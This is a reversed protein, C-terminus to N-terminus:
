KHVNAVSLIFVPPLSAKRCFLLLNPSKILIIKKKNKSSKSLDIGFRFFHVKAASVAVSFITGSGALGGRDLTAVREAHLAHGGHFEEVLLSVFTLAEIALFQHDPGGLVPRNRDGQLFAFPHHFGM